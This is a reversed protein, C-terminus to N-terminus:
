ERGRRREAMWERLDEARWAIIRETLRVRPPFQGRDELWRLHQRSFSIGLAQLEHYRIFRGAERLLLPLELQEPM